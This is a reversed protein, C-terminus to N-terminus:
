KEAPADSLPVGSRKLKDIMRIVHGGPWYIRGCEPCKKFNTFSHVVKQPIQDAIIDKEVEELPINCVSCRSLPRMMRFIGYIEDLRALQESIYHTKILLSHYSEFLKYHDTSGTVFIARPNGELLRAAQETRETVAADFGLIRLWRALGKLMGDIIFIIYDEDAEM